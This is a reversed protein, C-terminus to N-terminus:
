ATRPPGRLPPLPPPCESVFKNSLPPRRCFNGDGGRSDPDSVTGAPPHRSFFNEHGSDRSQGEGPAEKGKM